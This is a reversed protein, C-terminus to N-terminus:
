RYTDVGSLGPGFFRLAVLSQIVGSKGPVDLTAGRHAHPAIQKKDVLWGLMAASGYNTDGVVREPKLDFKDEVRDIMM